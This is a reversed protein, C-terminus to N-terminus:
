NMGFKQKLVNKSLNVNYNMHCGYSFSDFYNITTLEFIKTEGPELTIIVERNPNGIHYPSREIDYSYSHELREQSQEGEFISEPKLSIKLNELDDFIVHANFKLDNTKNKYKFLVGSNHEVVCEYIEVLKSNYKVRNKKPPFKKEDILAYTPYTLAISSSIEIAADEEYKEVLIVCNSHPAVRVLIQIPNSESVEQTPPVSRTVKVVSEVEARNKLVTLAAREDPDEIGDDVDLASITGKGVIPILNINLYQTLNLEENIYCDSTNNYVIYGYAGAEKGFSISRWSTPEGEETFFYKEPNKSAADFMVNKIFEKFIDDKADVQSFELKDLASYVGLTYNFQEEEIKKSHAELASIDSVNDESYNPFSVAVYYNGKILNECEVYIRNQRGSSAGIYTFGREDKRFVIMSCYKNTFNQLNKANKYIRQNKQNIVFFGSSNKTVNLKILSFASDKEFGFKESLYNYDNYYNCIHTSTYFKLFDNYDMWFTGDLEKEFKLLKKLEPTWKPSDDSWDGTWENSGWPNRIKLLRIKKGDPGYVEEADIITYSHNTILGMKSLNQLNTNETVTIDTCIIYDKRDAKLIEQYLIDHHVDHYFTNVPAPCLFEFAEASNGSIINEYNINAKAWAKELLMPWVNKTKPNYSAFALLPKGKKDTKEPVVPFYDDLVINVLNGHICVTVQFVGNRNFSLEPLMKKIRQPYEALASIASLFYCDGLDGQIVDETLIDPDEKIEAPEKLINLEGTKYMESLRM